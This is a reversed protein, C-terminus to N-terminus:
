VVRWSANNCFLTHCDVPSLTVFLQSINKLISKDHKEDKEAFNM